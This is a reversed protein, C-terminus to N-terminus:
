IQIVKLRKFSLERYKNELKIKYHLVRKLSNGGEKNLDYQGFQDKDFNTGINILDLVRDPGEKVVIEVIKEDNIGCGAIVTDSIHKEYSDPNYLVTAVGGQAKATTTQDLDSKSVIAVKGFKSVQIAYFLGAIGSGIVLYDFEVKM